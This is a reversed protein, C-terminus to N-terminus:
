NKIYNFYYININKRIIKNQDLEVTRKFVTDIECIKLSKHLDNHYSWNTKIISEYQFLDFKMQKFSENLLTREFTFYNECIIYLPIVIQLFCIIHYTNKMYFIEKEVRKQLTLFTLRRSLGNLKQQFNIHIKKACQTLDRKALNQWYAVIYRFYLLICSLHIHFNQANECVRFERTIPM